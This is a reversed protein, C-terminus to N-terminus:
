QISRLWNGDPMSSFGMRQAVEDYVPRKAERVDTWRSNGNSQIVAEQLGIESAIAVHMWARVLTVCWDLNNHLGTKLFPDGRELKEPRSMGTVDQFQRIFLRGDSIGAGAIAILHPDKHAPNDYTLGIGQATDLFPDAPEGKHNYTTRINPPATFTNGAPLMSSDIAIATTLPVFHFREITGVKQSADYPVALEAVRLGSVISGLRQALIADPRAFYNEPEWGPLFSEPSLDLYPIRDAGVSLFCGDVITTM